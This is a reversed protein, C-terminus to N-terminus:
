LLYLWPANQSGFDFIWGWGQRLEGLAGDISLVLHSRAELRPMVSDCIKLQHPYLVTGEGPFAWSRVVGGCLDCFLRISCKKIM